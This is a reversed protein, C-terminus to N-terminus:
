GERELEMLAAMVETRAYDDAELDILLESFEDLWGDGYLKGIVEARESAPMRLIELFTGRMRPPFALLRDRLKQEIPLLRAVAGIM